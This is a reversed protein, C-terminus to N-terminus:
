IKPHRLEKRNRCLIPQKGIELGREGIERGTQEMGQRKVELFRGVLDLYKVTKVDRETRGTKAKGRERLRRQIWSGGGGGDGFEGEV